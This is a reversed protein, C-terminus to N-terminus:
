SSQKPKPHSLAAAIRSELEAKGIVPEIEEPTLNFMNILGFLLSGEISSNGNEFNEIETIEVHLEAAVTTVTLGLELRKRKMMERLERM